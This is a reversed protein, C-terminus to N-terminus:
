GGDYKKSPLIAEFAEALPARLHPNRLRSSDDM